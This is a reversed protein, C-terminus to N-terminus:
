PNTAETSKETIDTEVTTGATTTDTSTSTDASTDASTDVSEETELDPIDMIDKVYPWLKENKGYFARARERHAINPMIQYEEELFNILEAVFAEKCEYKSDFSPPTSIPSQLIEFKKGGKMTLTVSLGKDEDCDVRYSSVQEWDYTESKFFYCVTSSIGEQSVTRYTTASVFATFVVCLLLGGTLMWTSPKAGLIKKKKPTEPTFVNKKQYDEPDPLYHIVLIAFLFLSAVMICGEQITLMAYGEVGGLASKIINATLQGTLVIFLLLLLVGVISGLLLFLCGKGSKKTKKNRNFLM